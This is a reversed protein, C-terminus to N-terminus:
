LLIRQYQIVKGQVHDKSEDVNILGDGGISAALGKMMHHITKNKRQMGILNYRSVRATGIIRYPALPRQEHQYVLINKPDKPLCPGTNITTVQQRYILNSALQTSSPLSSSCANLLFPIALLSIISNLLKM